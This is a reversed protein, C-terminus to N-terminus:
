LEARVRAVVAPRALRCGIGIMRYGAREWLRQWRTIGRKSARAEPPAYLAADLAHYRRGPGSREARLDNLREEAMVKMTWPLM